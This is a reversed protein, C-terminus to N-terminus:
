TPAFSRQIFSCTESKGNCILLGKFEKLIINSHKEHKLLYVTEVTRQQATDTCTVFGQIKDTQEMHEQLM